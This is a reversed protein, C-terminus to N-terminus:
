QVITQGTHDFLVRRGVHPTLYVTDNLKYRAEGIERV